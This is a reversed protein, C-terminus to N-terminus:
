NLRKCWANKCWRYKGRTPLLRVQLDAVPLLLVSHQHAPVTPQTSGDVPDPKCPPVPLVEEVLVAVAVEHAYPVNTSAKYMSSTHGAIRETLCKQQIIYVLERKSNSQDQLKKVTSQISCATEKQM